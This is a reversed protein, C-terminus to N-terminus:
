FLLHKRLHTKLNAISRRITDMWSPCLCDLNGTRRFFIKRISYKLDEKEALLEGTIKTNVPHEAFISGGKVESAAAAPAPSTPIAAATFGVADGWLTLIYTSCAYARNSKLCRLYVLVKCSALQRIAACITARAMNLQRQCYRLSPYARKGSGILKLLYVALLFASHTLPMKLLKCPVLTFGRDDSISVISYQNTDRLVAQATESFRFAATMTIYGQRALEAVAQSVTRASCGSQKALDAYTRHVHGNKQSALLAIYIRKSSPKLTEDLILQNCVKVYRTKM